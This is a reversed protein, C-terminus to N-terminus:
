SKHFWVKVHPRTLYYLMVIGIILSIVNLSFISLIDLIAAIIGLWWGWTAGTWYAYAVAFELLGFAIM